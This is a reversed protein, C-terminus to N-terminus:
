HLQESNTKTKILYKIDNFTIPDITSTIPPYHLEKGWNWKRSVLTNFMAGFSLVLM